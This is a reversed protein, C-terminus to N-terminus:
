RLRRKYYSKQIEEEDLPADSFPITPADYVDKGLKGWGSMSIETDAAQKPPQIVPKNNGSPYEVIQQVVNTNPHAETTLTPPQNTSSVITAPANRRGRGTVTKVITEVGKGPLSAVFSGFKRLSSKSREKRDDKKPEIGYLEKLRAQVRVTEPDAKEEEEEREPQVPAKQQRSRFASRPFYSQDLNAIKSLNIEPETKPPLEQTAETNMPPNALLEQIPETNVSSNILLEEVTKPDTLTEPGTFLEEVDKLQLDVLDEVNEGVGPNHDTSVSGGGQIDDLNDIDAMFEDVEDGGRAPAGAQNGLTAQLQAELDEKIKQEQEETPEEVDYFEEDESRVSERGPNDMRTPQELSKIYADFGYPSAGSLCELDNAVSGPDTDEGLYRPEEAVEHGPQIPGWYPPVAVVNGNEDFREENMIFGMRKGQSNYKPLDDPRRQLAFTPPSPGFLKNGGTNCAPKLNEMPDEEDDDDFIFSAYEYEPEGTNPEVELNSSRQPEEIREPRIQEVESEIEIEAYPDILNPGSELGELNINDVAHTLGVGKFSPPELAPENGPDSFRPTQPSGDGEEGDGGGEVEEEDTIRITTTQPNVIPKPSFPNNEMQRKFLHKQGDDKVAAPLYRAAALTSFGIVILKILKSRM